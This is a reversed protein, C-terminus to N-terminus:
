IIMGTNTCQNATSYNRTAESADRAFGEKGSCCSLIMVFRNVLIALVDDITMWGCMAFVPSV